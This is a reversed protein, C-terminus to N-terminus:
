HRHRRASRRERDAVQHCSRCLVEVDDLEERGLRTYTKHHVDLVLLRHTRESVGCRGCTGDARELALARFERWRRTRLYSEYAPRQSYYLVRKLTRQEVGDLPNVDPVFGRRCAIWYREVDRVLELVEDRTAATM